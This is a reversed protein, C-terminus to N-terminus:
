KRKTASARKRPNPRDAPGGTEEPEPEDPEPPWVFEPFPARGAAELEARKDLFFQTAAMEDEEDAYAGKFARPKEGGVAIYGCGVQTKKIKYCPANETDDKWIMTDTTAGNTAFSCITGSINERLTADINNTSFRQTTLINSIAAFRMEAVLQNMKMDIESGISRKKAGDMVISGHVMAYEDVMTVIPPYKDWLDRDIKKIGLDLCVQKRLNGQEQVWELYALMEIPDQIVKVAPMFKQFDLAKPSLIAFIIQPTARLISCALASLLVSKGSGPEGQCMMNGAALNAYAPSGDAYVGVPLHKLDIATM